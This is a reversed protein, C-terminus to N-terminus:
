LNPRSAIPSCNQALWAAREEQDLEARSRALQHFEMFDEGASQHLTSFACVGGEYSEFLALDANNIASAFWSAFYDHGDWHKNRLDQYAARLAAFVAQKMERMEDESMEKAYLASLRNRTQKLLRHFDSIAAQRRTWAVSAGVDRDSELWADVGALEVFRAYSENFATDGKVYLRQHALEHIITAALQMDPGGLMTDLLPDDFWGLTSYATVPRVAVDFGKNRLRNANKGAKAREFYGRYPVCGAVPFCWKRAALSFEPAAVVNWVVATRGTEVYSAYSNGAPLGLENEAFALIDAATNLREALGPDTRSDELVEGIDQRARMLKWHGSVAQMYYGPGACAFSVFCILFALSIHGPIKL